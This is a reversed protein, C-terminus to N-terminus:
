VAFIRTEFVTMQACASPAKGLSVRIRKELESMYRIKTSDGPRILVDGFRVAGGIFDGAAEFKRVRNGSREAEEKGPTSFLYENNLLGHIQIATGTLGRNYYAGHVVARDIKQADLFRGLEHIDMSSILGSPAFRSDHYSEGSRFRSNYPFLDWFDSVFSGAHDPLRIDHVLIPCSSDAVRSRLADLYMGYGVSEDVGLGEQEAFDPQLFVNAEM